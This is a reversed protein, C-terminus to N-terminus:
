TVSSSLTNLNKTKLIEPIKKWIAPGIYSLSNQGTSTKQLPDSLKPYSNRTTTRTNEAQRFVECLIPM